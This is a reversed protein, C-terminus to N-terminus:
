AAPKQKDEFSMKKLSPIIDKLQECLHEAFEAPLKGLGEGKVIAEGDKVNVDINHMNLKVGLVAKLQENLDDVKRLVKVTYTVDQGSLPHNFDVLVRGGAAKRVEGYKGDVNVSLGIQPTVGQSKFKSIPILQVLKATKKGFAKEPALEFSLDAGVDKGVLQEDIGIILHNEGLCVIIPGYTMNPNSISEKKALEGDTTDFVQGNKKLKGTYEVEIFDGKKLAM